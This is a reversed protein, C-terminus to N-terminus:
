NGHMCTVQHIKTLHNRNEDVMCIYIYAREIEFDILTGVRIGGFVAHGNPMAMPFKGIGRLARKRNISHQIDVTARPKQRAPTYTRRGRRRHMHDETNQQLLPPAQFRRAETLLQFRRHNPRYHTNLHRVM